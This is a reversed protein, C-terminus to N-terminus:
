PAVLTHTQKHPNYTGVTATGGDLAGTLTFDISHGSPDAPLTITAINDVPTNITGAIIRKWRRENHSITPM